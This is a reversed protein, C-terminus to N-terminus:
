LQMLPIDVSYRSRFCGLPCTTCLPRFSPANIPRLLHLTGFSSSINSATCALMSLCWDPRVHFANVPICNPTCQMLVTTDKEDAVWLGTVAVALLRRWNQWYNRFLVTYSAPVEHQTDPASTAAYVFLLWHARIPLPSDELYEVSKM